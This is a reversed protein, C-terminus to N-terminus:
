EPFLLDFVDADMTVWIRQNFGIQVPLMKFVGEKNPKYQVGGAEFVFTDANTPTVGKFKKLFDRILERNHGKELETM